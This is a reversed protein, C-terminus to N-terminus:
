FGNIGVKIAMLEGVTRQRLLRVSNNTSHFLRSWSMSRDCRCIFCFDYIVFPLQAFNRKVVSARLVLYVHSQETNM